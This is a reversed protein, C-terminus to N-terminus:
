FCKKFDIKEGFHTLITARRCSNGYVYDKICKLQKQAYDKKTGSKIKNLFFNSLYFDQDSYFMHCESDAGDRGARGVEQYYSDLNSPCGYHM